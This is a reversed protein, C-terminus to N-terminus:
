FEGSFPREWRRGEWACNPCKYRKFDFIQFTIYNSMYDTKQRRIRELANKCYPCCNNCNNCKKKRWVNMKRLIILIFIYSIIFIAFQLFIDIKM